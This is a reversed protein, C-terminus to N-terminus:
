ILKGYVTEMYTHVAWFGEPVQGALKAELIGLHTHWGSAVSIRTEQKDELKRHTLTLLVKGDSQEELAITVESGDGWTFALLHPPDCQRIQGTFGHGQEYHRYKDPLTEQHPSLDAHFFRLEVKGGVHLEMDGYALWQGRKESETLYEWVREIPGPLVRRFRLTGPAIIKGYKNDM